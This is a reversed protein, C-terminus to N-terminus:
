YLFPWWCVICVREQGASSAEDLSNTTAAEERLGRAMPTSEEAAVATSLLFTLVYISIKM